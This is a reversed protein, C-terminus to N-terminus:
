NQQAELWLFVRDLEALTVLKHQWLVVPLRNLNQCKQLVAPIVEGPIALEDRFFHLLQHAQTTMSNPAQTPM